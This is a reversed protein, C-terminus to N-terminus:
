GSRVQVRKSNISILTIEKFSKKRREFGEVSGWWCECGWVIEGSDLKICPNVLDTEIMEEGMFGCPKDIDKFESPRRLGIYEGYGFIYLIDGDSHSIAVVRDGIKKSM